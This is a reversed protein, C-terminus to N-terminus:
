LGCLLFCTAQEPCSLTYFFSVPAFYCLHLGFIPGPRFLLIIPMPRGNLILGLVVLDSQRRSLQPSPPPQFWSILKQLVTSGSCRGRTRESSPSTELSIHSLTKIEPVHTLPVLPRTGRKWSRQCLWTWTWCGERRRTRAMSTASATYNKQRKHGESSFDTWCFQKWVDTVFLRDIWPLTKSGCLNEHLDPDQFHEYPDPDLSTFVLSSYNCLFNLVLDKLIVYFIM